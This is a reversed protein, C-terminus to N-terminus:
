RLALGLALHRDCLRLLFLCPEADGIAVAVLSFRARSCGSVSNGFVRDRRRALAGVVGGVVEAVGVTDLHHDVGHVPHDARM